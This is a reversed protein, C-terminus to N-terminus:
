EWWHGEHSWDVRHWATALQKFEDRGVEEWEWRWCWQRSMPPFFRKTPGKGFIGGHLAHHDRCVYYKETILAFAPPQRLSQWWLMGFLVAAAIVLGSVGILVAALLAKVM